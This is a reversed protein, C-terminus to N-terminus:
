NRLLIGKGDIVTRVENQTAAIDSADGQEEILERFLEDVALGDVMEWTKAESLSNVYPQILAQSRLESQMDERAYLFGFDRDENSQDKARLERLQEKETLWTIFRWSEDRNAQPRNQGVMMSWYHAYNSPDNPNIQPIEAVGIDLGLNYFDNFFLIDNLRWQPALIMAAQSNLFALSDNELTEDWSGVENADAWNLYFQLTSEAFSSNAFVPVGLINVMSIDNQFFLIYLLEAAFTVNSATGGAFGAQTIVGNRKTLSSALNNFGVWDSPPVTVAVEELMDKNYIIAYTDMWIPLGTVAGDRIFDDAVAQYFASEVTQPDIISVPAPYTYLEDYNGAWTNHTMFIDPIQNADNAFLVRELNAKYVGEAQRYNGGPWKNQYTIEVNPNLSQYEAIVDAVVDEDWFVGWWQLRITSDISGTASGTTDTSTGSDTQCGVLILGLVIFLVATRWKKWNNM